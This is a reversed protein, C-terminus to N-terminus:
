GEQVMGGETGPQREYLVKGQSMVTTIFALPVHRWKQIEAPTYFLIDLPFRVYSLAQLVAKGRKHRPADYANVVLLDVDSDPTPDGSAYSGFLIIQEPQEVEVITQKVQEIQEQTIM